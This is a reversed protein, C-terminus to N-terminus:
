AATYSSRPHATTTSTRTSRSNERSNTDEPANSSEHTAAYFVGRGAQWIVDVCADPLVLIPRGGAIVRRSWLCTVVPRLEEPPEWELYGDRIM